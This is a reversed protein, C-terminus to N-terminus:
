ATTFDLFLFIIILWFSAMRKVKVNSSMNDQIFPKLLKNYLELLVRCDEIRPNAQQGSYAYVQVCCISALCTLM